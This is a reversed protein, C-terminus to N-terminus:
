RRKSITTVALLAALSMLGFGADCGSSSSGTDGSDDDGSSKTSTTATYVTYTTGSTLAKSSGLYVSDSTSAKAGTSTLLTGDILAGNSDVFYFFTKAPDKGEFATGSLVVFGDADPTVTALASVSASTTDNELKEKITTEVTSDKEAGVVVTSGAFTDTDAMGLGTKADALAAADTASVAAVTPKTSPTDPTSSGGTSAIMAVSLYSDSSSVFTAASDGVKYLALVGPSTVAIVANADDYAIDVQGYALNNRGMPVLHGLDASINGALVNNVGWKVNDTITYSVLRASSVGSGVDFSEVAYVKGTPGAVAALVDYNDQSVIIDEIDELVNNLKKDPRDFRYIANGNAILSTDGVKAVVTRKFQAPILATIDVSNNNFDDASTAAATLEAIYRASGDTGGVAFDGSTILYIDKDWAVVADASVNITKTVDTKGDSDFSVFVVSGYRAGTMTRDNSLFAIIINGDGDVTANRFEEPDVPNEDSGASDMDLWKPATSDAEFVGISNNGIALVNKYDNYPVLRYGNLVGAYSVDSTSVTTGDFTLLKVNGVKDTALFQTDAWAVSTFALVVVLAALCLARFKIKM